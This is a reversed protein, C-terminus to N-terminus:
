NSKNPAIIFDITNHQRNTSFQVKNTLDFTDLFDNFNLTDSDKADNIWINLDGLITHHSYCNVYEEQVNTLNSIFQVISTDPPRYVLTLQHTHPVTICLHQKKWTQDQTTKDCKINSDARHVLAIGGGTRGTRLISIAKYGTPCIQHATLTDDLKVWTEMLAYLDLNSNM